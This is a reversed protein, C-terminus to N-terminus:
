LEPYNISVVEKTGLIPKTTVVFEDGENLVVEDGEIDGIRLKPGALDMLVAIPKGSESELKRTNSITLKHDDHSGHAMNIRVVDMGVDLLQRMIKIDRSAPGITCVIKTRAM